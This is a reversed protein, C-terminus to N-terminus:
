CSRALWIPHSKPVNWRELKESSYVDIASFYQTELGADELRQQFDNGYYRVHDHQGFRRTREEPSANIDEDTPVGARHPVQIIALGGPVLIRALDRMAAADDPIHELVHFSIALDFSRDQFPMSCADAAVTAFRLDILDSGVYTAAGALKKLLVSIQPQPAYELVARCTCLWLRFDYLISALFRHRELSHCVPCSARPRGGPGPTWTEVLSFCAPCFGANQVGTM